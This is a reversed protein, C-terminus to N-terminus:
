ETGWSFETKRFVGDGVSDVRLPGVTINSFGGKPAKPLSWRGVLAFEWGASVAGDLEPPEVTQLKRDVILYDKDYVLAEIRLEGATRVGIPEDGVHRLAVRVPTGAVTLEIAASPFDALDERIARLVRILDEYGTPPNANSAFTADPLGDAVLQETSGSSARAAPPGPEATAAAASAATARASELAHALATREKATLDRAFRGVRWGSTQWGTVHGDDDVVLGIELTSSGYNSLTLRVTM